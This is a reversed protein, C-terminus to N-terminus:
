VDFHSIDQLHLIKEKLLGTRNLKLNFFFIRFKECKINSLDFFERSKM